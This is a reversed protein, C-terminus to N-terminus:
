FIQLIAQFLTNINTWGVLIVWAMCCHNLTCFLLCSQLHWHTYSCGIGFLFPKWGAHSWFLGLEWSWCGQMAANWLGPTFRIVKQLIFVCQNFSVSSFSSLMMIMNLFQLILPWTRGLQDKSLSVQLWVRVVKGATWYQDKKYHSLFWGNHKFNSDSQSQCLIVPESLSYGQVTQFCWV